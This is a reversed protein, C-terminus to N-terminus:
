RILDNAIEFINEPSIGTMCPHDIPCDRLMCPACDVKNRVIEAGIPKTTKPNTPGFITLTKTGVAPAIHALGMDNSILLDIESLIGVADTLSTDGTLIIPKIMSSDTVQRAISLENRSGLLIINADLDKQLKDNLFAYREAGWRKARSNTSGVGFAITKKSLDIGKDRLLHQANLKLEDSISPLSDESKAFSSWSGAVMMIVAFEGGLVTM